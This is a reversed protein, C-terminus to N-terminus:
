FLAVAFFEGALFDAGEDGAVRAAVDGVVLHGRHRHGDVEAPHGGGFRGGEGVV